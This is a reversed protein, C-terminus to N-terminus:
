QTITIKVADLRVNSSSLEIIYTGPLEDLFLIMEDSIGNIVKQLKQNGQIDLLRLEASKLDDPLTYAVTIFGNTPNPFVRLLEKKSISNPFSNRHTIIRSKNSDSFLYPEYYSLEHKHLRINRSFSKVIEDKYVHSDMESTPINGISNYQRLKEFFWIYDLYELNNNSNFFLPIQSITIYANEVDGKTALALAKDIRARVSNISDCFYILSDIREQGKQNNILHYYIDDAITKQISIKSEMLEKLSISDEMSMIQNYLYDPMPDIREDIASLLKDLKVSHTNSVLLDRLMANNIVDDKKIAKYIVTDSLYPSLSMLDTYLEIAINPNSYEIEQVISDSNGNDIVKLYTDFSSLYQSNLYNISNIM